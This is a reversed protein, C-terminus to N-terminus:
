VENDAAADLPPPEWATTSCGVAAAGAAAGAAAATPCFRLVVQELARQRRADAALRHARAQAVQHLLHVRERLLVGPQAARQRRRRGRRGRELLQRAGVALLGVVDVREGLRRRLALRRDPLHLCAAARRGGGPGGGGRASVGGAAVKRARLHLERLRLHHRTLDLLPRLGLALAQRLLVVRRHHLRLLLELLREGAGRPLVRRQLLQKVAEDGDDDVRISPEVAECLAARRLRDSARRHEFGPLAGRGCRGSM